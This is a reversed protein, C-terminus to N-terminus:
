RSLDLAFQSINILASVEQVSQNITKRDSRIVIDHQDMPYISVPQDARMIKSLFEYTDEHIPYHAFDPDIDSADIIDLPDANFENSFTLLQSFTDFVFARAYRLRRESRQRYQQRMKDREILQPLATYVFITLPHYAGLPDLLSQFSQTDVIVNLGRDLMKVVDEVLQQDIQEEPIGNEELEDRDLVYWHDGLNEALSHSLTSKGACSAGCILILRHTSDKPPEVAWSRNCSFLLLLILGIHQANIM